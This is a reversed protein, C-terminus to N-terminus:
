LSHFRYSFQPWVVAALRIQFVSVSTFPVKMALNM